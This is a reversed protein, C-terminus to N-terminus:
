GMMGGIFMKVIGEMTTDGAKAAGPAPGFREPDYPGAKMIANTQEEFKPGEPALMAMLGPTGDAGAGAAGRMGAVGPVGQPAAGAAGRPPPMASAVAPPTGAGGPQMSPQVGAQPPQTQVGPLPPRVPAAPAQGPAGGMGGPTPPGIRSVDIRGEGMRGSEGQAGQGGLDPLAVSGDENYLSSNSGYWDLSDKATNVPAGGTEGGKGMGAAAGAAGAGGGGGGGSLKALDPPGVNSAPNFTPGRANLTATISRPQGGSFMQSYAAALAPDRMAMAAMQNQTMM